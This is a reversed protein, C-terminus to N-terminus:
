MGLGLAIERAQADAAVAISGEDPARMMQEFERDAVDDDDSDAKSDAKGPAPVLKTDCGETAVRRHSKADPSEPPTEDASLKAFAAFKTELSYDEGKVEKSSRRIPPVEDATHRRDSKQEM